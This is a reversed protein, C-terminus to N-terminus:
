KRGKIDEVSVFDSTLKKYPTEDKSATEFLPQYHFEPVAAKRVCSQASLARLSSVSLSSSVRSFARAMALSMAFLPLTRCFLSHTFTPASVCAFPEIM